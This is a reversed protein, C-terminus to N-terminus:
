WSQVLCAETNQHIVNITLKRNACSWCTIYSLTYSYLYLYVCVLGAQTSEVSFATISFNKTGFLTRPAEGGSIEGSSFDAAETQRYWVQRTANQDSHARSCRDKCMKNIVVIINAHIIIVTTISLSRTVYKDANFVSQNQRTSIVKQCIIWQLSSVFVLLFAMSHCPFQV